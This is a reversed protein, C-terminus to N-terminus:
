SLEDDGAVREVDLNEVSRTLSAAHPVLDVLEGLLPRALARVELQARDGDEAPDRPERAVEVQGAARREGGV